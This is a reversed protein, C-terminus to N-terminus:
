LLLKSVQILHAKASKGFVELSKHHKWSNLMNYLNYIGKCNSVVLIAINKYLLIFMCVYTYVRM